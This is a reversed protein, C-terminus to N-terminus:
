LQPTLLAASPAIRRQVAVSSNKEAAGEPMDLVHGDDHQISAFDSGTLGYAHLNGAGQMFQTHLMTGLRLKKLCTDSWQICADESCSRSSGYM